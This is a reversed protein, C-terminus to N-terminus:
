STSSSKTGFFEYNLDFNEELNLTEDLSEFETKDDEASGEDSDNDDLEEVENAVALVDELTLERDIYSIDEITKWWTQPTQCDPEFPDDYPSENEKYSALQGILQRCTSESNGLSKWLASACTAIRKYQNQLENEMKAEVQIIQKNLIREALTKPSPIKFGPRLNQLWGRFIENGAVNFSISACVFALCMDNELQEQR